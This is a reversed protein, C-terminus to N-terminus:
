LQIPLLTKIENAHLEIKKTTQKEATALHLEYRGPKINKIYFQGGPLRTVFLFPLTLPKDKDLETEDPLLTVFSNQATLNDPKIYGVLSAEGKHTKEDQARENELYQYLASNAIPNIPLQKQDIWQCIQKADELEVNTLGQEYPRIIKEKQPYNEPLARLYCRQWALAKVKDKPLVVGYRYAQSILWIKQLQAVTLTNAQAQLVLPLFLAILFISHRFRIQM